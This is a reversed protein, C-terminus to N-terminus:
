LTFTHVLAYRGINHFSKDGGRTVWSYILYNISLYPYTSNNLVSPSWAERQKGKQM